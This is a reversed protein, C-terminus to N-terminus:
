LSPLTIIAMFISGIIVVCGLVTLRKSMVPNARVPASRYFENIGGSIQKLLLRHQAPEIYIYARGSRAKVTAFLDANAGTLRLKGKGEQFPINLKALTSVLVERFSEDPLDYFFYGNSQKWVIVVILCFLLVVIVPIVLTARISFFIEKPFLVWKISDIYQGIMVAYPMTTALFPYFIWTLRRTSVAYPKKLWFGRVGMMFFDAGLILLFVMQARLIWRLYVSWQVWVQHVGDM